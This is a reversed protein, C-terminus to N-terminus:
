SSDHWRPQLWWRRQLCLRQRRQGGHDHFVARRYEDPQVVVETEPAGFSCSVQRMSPQSPLDNIIAQYGEDIHAFSLNKTAYVRVKAGPAISSSWETDLTEEGSPAALTGSVAHIFTINSLSQNVGADTWFTTLDSKAPFTDIVIGITQGAGTLGLGNANYAHTNRETLFSARLSGNISDPQVQRAAKRIHKHPQIHPQLGNIGLVPAALAAPLSPATVGEIYTKGKVSVKAVSTQLSKQILDTTGSVFIGLRCPDTKTITLGQGSLWDV